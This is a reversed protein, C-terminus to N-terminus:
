PNDSGGGVAVGSSNLTSINGNSDIATYTGNNNQVATSGSTLQDTVSSPVTDGFAGYTNSVNGDLVTANANLGSGIGYDNLNSSFTSDGYGFSDGGGFGGGFDGGFDYSDSFGGGGGGDAATFTFDDGGAFLRVAGNSDVNGGNAFGAIRGGTGYRVVPEGSGMNTEDQSQLSQNFAAGGGAM